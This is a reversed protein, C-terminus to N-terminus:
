LGCAYGQRMAIRACAGWGEKGLAGDPFRAVVHPADNYLLCPQPRGAETALSEDTVFSFKRGCTPWMGKTLLKGHVSDLADEEPNYTFGGGFDNSGEKRSDRAETLTGRRKLLAPGLWSVARLVASAQLFRSPWVSTCSAPSLEGCQLAPDRHDWAAPVNRATLM